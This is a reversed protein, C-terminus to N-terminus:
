HWDHHCFRCQKASPTRDIKNYKPSFNLQLEPHLEKNEM